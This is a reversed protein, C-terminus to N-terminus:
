TPNARREKAASEVGLLGGVRPLEALHQEVRTLLLHEADVGNDDDGPFLGAGM